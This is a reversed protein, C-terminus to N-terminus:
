AAEFLEENLEAKEVPADSAKAEDAAEEKAAGAAEDAAEAAPTVQPGEAPNGPDPSGAEGAEAEKKKGFATRLKEVQEEVMEDTVAIQYAPLKEAKLD